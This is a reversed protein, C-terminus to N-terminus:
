SCAEQLRSADADCAGQSVATHVLMPFPSLVTKRIANSALERTPSMESISQMSQMCASLWASPAALGPRAQKSFNIHGDLFPPRTDHVLLLVREDDDNDFDLNAQWWRRWCKRDRRM